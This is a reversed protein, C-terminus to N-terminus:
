VNKPFDYSFMIMLHESYFLVVQFRVISHKLLPTEFRNLLSKFKKAMIERGTEAAASPSSGKIKPQHASHEVVMSGGNVM